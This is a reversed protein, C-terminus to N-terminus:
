IKVTVTAQINNTNNCNMQTNIEHALYNGAGAGTNVNVVWADTYIGNATSGGNTANAFTFTAVGTRNGAGSTPTYTFAGVALNGSYSSLPTTANSTLGANTPNDTVQPVPVVNSGIGFGTANVTFSTVSISTAGQVALASTTVNQTNGTGFGLQLTTGSPIAAPLAAVALSTVATANAALASTLTSSGANNTLLINNFIAPPSAAASNMTRQLMSNAGQDTIVNMNWLRQVIQGTRPNYQVLEWIGKPKGRDEKSKKVMAVFQEFTRPRQSRTRHYAPHNVTLHEDTYTPTLINGM